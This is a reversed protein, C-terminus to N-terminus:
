PAHFDKTSSLPPINPDRISRIDKQWTFSFTSGHGPSSDLHIQGDQDEVIKRVLSLGVGTGELQDRPRLTQFIMWIKHHYAPDIGPGDDTVSFEYCNGIDRARIIIQGREPHHHHKIANSILNLFVQQIRIREAVLAPMSGEIKIHFGPPPALLDIVSKLLHGVDVRESRVAVRGVRSYALIGDILAEMRHVRGRLLDLQHRVHDTVLLGLDEEIWSSLNAIGRLPAKLDHSTVYAYQDLEDNSRKLSRALSALQLNRLRLTETDEQRQSLQHTTEEAIKRRTIDRQIVLAGVPLPSAILNFWQTRNGSPIPYECDISFDSNGVLLHHLDSGFKQLSPFQACADLLSAGVGPHIGTDASLRRWPDNDAIVFGLHDLVVCPDPFVDICAPNFGAPPQTTSSLQPSLGTVM